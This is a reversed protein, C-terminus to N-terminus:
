NNDLIKKLENWRPDVPRDDDAAEDSDASDDGVETRLLHSLKGAMEKNCKGAPHVHKMPIALAVFEFMFWAVNITGEDEPVVVLNDDEESYDEGFKVFMKDTSEVHQDMDDLCRDCEVVVTGETQFDLEFASSMRKVSLSVNVRGKQVEPSDIDAFFNNDLVFSYQETDNKM